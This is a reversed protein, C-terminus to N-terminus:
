MSTSFRAHKEAWADLDDARYRVRTGFKLYRPGSGQSRWRELTKESLRLREAAQKPSLYTVGNM